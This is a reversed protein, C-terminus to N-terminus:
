GYCGMHYAHTVTTKLGWNRKSAIKQAGSPSVYGTCSVHILDDPPSSKEGYYTEFIQDVHKEFHQSRFSLNMGEPFQTLRFIEMEEWNKHLYDPTIHGRKAIWEPKCGIHWLKESLEKRFLALDPHGKQRESETHADILWDLTKEQSTEYPPRIIEFDSLIM